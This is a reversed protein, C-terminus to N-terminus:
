EHPAKSNKKRFLRDFANIRIGVAGSLVIYSMLPQISSTLAPEIPPYGYKHEAALNPTLPINFGLSQRYYFFDKRSIFTHTFLPSLIIYKPKGIIDAREWTDGPGLGHHIISLKSFEVQQFHLDFSVQRNEDGKFRYYAGIGIRYTQYASSNFYYEDSVGGGPHHSKSETIGKDYGFSSTLFLPKKRVKWYNHVTFSSMKSKSKTSGFFNYTFGFHDVPSFSLQIENHSTSVAVQGQVEGAREFQPVAPLPAVYHYSSCSALVLMGICFM